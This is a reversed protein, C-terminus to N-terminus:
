WWSWFEVRLYRSLRRTVLDLLRRDGCCIKATGTMEPKLLLAANDLQTTVLITKEGSAGEKELKNVTPAISTVTGEFLRQPYARAKLLVKQGVAVDAIEKESVAIEATVTKLEHVKAILDGKLVHQGLKEKLKHTTVVGDIPSM